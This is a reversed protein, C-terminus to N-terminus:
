GYWKKNNPRKNTNLFLDYIMLFYGILWIVLDDFNFAPKNQNIKRCPM